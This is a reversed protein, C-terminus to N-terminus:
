KRLVQQYARVAQTQSEAGLFGALVRLDLGPLLESAAVREYRDARLAHVEIRGDRVIWLERVGLGRYLELKDIGGQTWIVEIALDPWEKPGGIAYCEDPEAGREKPRERITMSGYGDLELGTELAYVELLRALLKKISEQDRSPSMIELEGELYCIRPGAGEGRMRLVAEYDEWSVDHLCVRQDIRDSIDPYGWPQEVRV